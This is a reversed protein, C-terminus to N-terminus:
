LKPVFPKAATRIGRTQMAVKHLDLLSVVWIFGREPM